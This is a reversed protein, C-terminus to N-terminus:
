DYRRPYRQRYPGPPYPLPQAYVNPACYGGVGRITAACQALTYYSCDHSYDNGTFWACWPAARLPTGANILFATAITAVAAFTRM